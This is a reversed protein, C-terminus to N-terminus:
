LISDRSRACSELAQRSSRACVFGTAEEFKKGSAVLPYALYAAAGEPIKTGFLRRGLFLTLWLLTFPVPVRRRGLARCAEATTVHDSPVVNFAGRLTEAKLAHCLATVADEESLFQLGGRRGLVSVAFPLSYFRHVPGQPRQSSGVITALRLVCVQLSRRVHPLAKALEEEITRKHAAWALGSAKLPHSENLPQPNGRRAGYAATSGAIVLKEVRPSKDAAELVVLTGHINTERALVRQSFDANLFNLHFIVNVGEEELVSRLLYEDRIDSNLWRLKPHFAVGLPLRDVGVVREVLPHELLRPLLLSGLYGAAGTVLVKKPTM